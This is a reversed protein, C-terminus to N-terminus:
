QFLPFRHKDFHYFHVPIQAHVHPLYRYTGMNIFYSDHDTSSFVRGVLSTKSLSDLVFSLVYKGKEISMKTHLTNCESCFIFLMLYSVDGSMQLLYGPLSILFLEQKCNVRKNLLLPM